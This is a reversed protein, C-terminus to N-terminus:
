LRCLRDTLWRAPSSGCTPDGRRMNPIDVAHVGANRQTTLSFAGDGSGDCYEDLAIRRYRLDVFRQSLSAPWPSSGWPAMAAM